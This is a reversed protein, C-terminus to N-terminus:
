LNEIKVSSGENIKYKEALGAKIEVVMESKEKPQYTPLNGTESLVQANKIITTIKNNEIYIIDIPFKMEKMWFSYFDPKDFLFLMGQDDDIKNKSSLGIQKETETKAVFVNFSKNNITVKTKTQSNNKSIFIVLILIALFFIVIAGTLLRINEKLLFIIKEM